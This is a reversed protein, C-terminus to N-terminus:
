TNFALFLKRLHRHRNHKKYKQLTENYFPTRKAYKWWLGALSKRKDLWAKNPGIWHIINYNKAKFKPIYHYSKHAIQKNFNEDLTFIKRTLLKNLADQDQYVLNNEAIIKMLKSCYDNKKFENINIIIVGTNYYNDGKAINLINYTYNKTRTKGIPVDKELLEDWVGDICAALPYNDINIEYLKKIDANFILDIDTFIVKEYNPMVEPVIIRYYSAENFYDTGIYLEIGSFYHSPDYFRISVNESSYTDIIIKKREEDKGSSFVVIDYNHNKSTNDILSQLCVCLYPLYEDSSAMAIASYNEKWIPEIRQAIDM